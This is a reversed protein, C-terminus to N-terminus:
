LLSAQGGSRGFEFNRIMLITGENSNGPTEGRIKLRAIQQASILFDKVLKDNSLARRHNDITKNEYVRVSDPLLLITSEGSDKATPDSL